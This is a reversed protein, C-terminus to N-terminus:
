TIGVLILLWVPRFLKIPEKIRKITPKVVAKIKWQYSTESFYYRIIIMYTM